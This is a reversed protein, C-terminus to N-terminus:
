NLAKFLYCLGGGHRCHPTPPHSQPRLFSIVIDLELRLCQASSPDADPNSVMNIAELCMRSPPVLIRDGPDALLGCGLGRYGAQVGAIEAQPTSRPHARLM